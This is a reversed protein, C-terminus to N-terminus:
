GEGVGATTLEQGLRELMLTQALCIKAFQALHLGEDPGHIRAGPDATGVVLVEADPFAASLEAVSPISGGIGIEVPATGFAETLAQQAVAFAPTTTSLQFPPGAVADSVTVKAGFEAHSRIHGTLADLAAGPHQGPAIRMSVKARAVPVLVNGAEEVSPADLGLVSICPRTWLREVLSGSGVLEVGERVSAEARYLSEPYDVHAAPGTVLGEVAVEGNEDHLTALLRCLSTLADVVPGGYQGSHVAHDLVRVEVVCDVSGRLSTTLAPTDISWTTSDAVVIVEAALKDRYTRLLPVLTPSGIEEEGEVFMTVGVPPRGDYARLAAIHAMVGAKDDAVGRGYLRGERETPQFPESSWQAPDGTPQVDHHAYLLVTPAGEPAPWNAIVAPAGGTVSVVEAHAAGAGIALAAVAVASARVQGARAPDASVSPIRVLSELDALVSPLVREVAIYLDTM